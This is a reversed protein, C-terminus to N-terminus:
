KRQAIQARVRQEEKKLEMLHDFAMKVIPNFLTVDRVQNEIPTTKWYDTKESWEKRM